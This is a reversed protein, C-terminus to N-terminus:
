SVRVLELRYVLRTRWDSESIGLYTYTRRVESETRRIRRRVASLKIKKNLPADNQHGIWVIM